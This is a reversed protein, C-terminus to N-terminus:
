PHQQPVYFRLGIPIGPEDEEMIPPLEADLRRIKRAPSTLYFDTFDDVVEELDKRKMKMM